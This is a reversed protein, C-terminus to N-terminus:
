AEIYEGITFSGVRLRDGVRPKRYTKTDLWIKDRLSQSVRVAERADAIPKKDTAILYGSVFLGATRPAQRRTMRTRIEAHYPPMGLRTYGIHTSRKREEIVRDPDHIHWREYLYRWSITPPLYGGFIREGDGGPYTAAAQTLHQEAVYQPRVDILGGDPLHTTYRERGLRYEYDAARPIRVMRQRVSYDDILYGHAKPPANLHMAATPKAGLVIEDYEIAEFSGVLEPTVTRVTLTEEVGRDVLKATRIYKTGELSVPNVPGLAVDGGPGRNQSLFCGYKGTIGRQVYPYVRLQAFRALYREREEETFERSLFTKAPPVIYRLATANMAALAETIATQTGKISHFPLSRAMQARKKEQPWDKDWLDVSLGWALWPLHTEPVEYPQVLKRLDVPLEAIRAGTLDAAEEFAGRNPPLLTERVM